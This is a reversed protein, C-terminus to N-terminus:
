SIVADRRLRIMSLAQDIEDVGIIAGTIGRSFRSLAVAPGLFGVWLDPTIEAPEDGSWVTAGSIQQSTLRLARATRAATAKAELRLDERGLGAAWEGVMGWTELLSSLGHCFSPFDVLPTTRRLCEVGWEVATTLSPDNRFSQLLCWLFGAVGHCWYQAPREGGELTEAINFGNVSASHTFVGQFVRRAFVEVEYDGGVVRAWAALGFAVGSAGHAAGLFARRRPDYATTARWHLVGGNEIASHILREAIPRLSVTISTDNLIKGVCCAAYLHGATGSFLDWENGERSLSAMLIRRSKDCYRADNLCKGAAALAIAIGCDGTFLGLAPSETLSLLHQATAEVYDWYAQRRTDSALLHVIGLLIGASGINLSRCCYDAFIDNNRWAMGKDTSREFSRLAPLVRDGSKRAWHKISNSNRSLRLPRSGERKIGRLERRLIQGAERATPRASPDPHTLAAYVKACRRRGGLLLLKIIRSRTFSLPLRSPDFRLAWQALCSGLSYIDYSPMVTSTVGETPIYGSTGGAIPGIEGVPAALEFDILKVRRGNTRARCNSLKIDRHVLGAAHLVDLSDAIQPLSRLRQAQDLTEASSGELDTTILINVTSDYAIVEPSIRLNRIHRLSRFENALRRCACNGQIDEGVRPRARKMICTRVRSVQMAMDVRFRNGKSLVGMPFYAEGDLVIQDASSLSDVYISVPMPPVSEISHQQGSITRVDEMENGAPDLLATYPRGLTTWRVITGSFVGYRLSQGVRSEVRIDSLPFPGSEFTLHSIADSILLLHEQDSPYVTFIKGLQSLGAQGSNLLLLGHLSEPVKFSANRRLLEEGILRVSDACNCASVSLHLKWGQNPSSQGDRIFNM